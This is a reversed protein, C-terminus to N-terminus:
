FLHDPRGTTKDRSARGSMEDGEEEQKKQEYFFRQIFEARERCRRHLRFFLIM